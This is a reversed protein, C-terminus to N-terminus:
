FMAEYQRAIKDWNHNRHALELLSAPADAPCTILSKLQEGTNFYRILGGTTERNYNVDFALIPRDFHMAEVLSPNTGGASHGHIYIGANARLAYLIDLDYIAEILHIGPVNSFEEYLMRSYENHQWNGVFAMEMGLERITQLIMLCNNEPEIRCVSIAYQGATLGYRKVIESQTDKDLDRIAHDGGYTIIEPYRHYTNRVYNAIVTNDAIVVDAHRVATREALRLFRRTTSGWKYRRHELGDINVVVKARTFRKLMPLMVCGSVGLMLITDYGRLARAMSIIDYPISQLGNAHLPTYKLEAGEYQRGRTKLDLSSCFVTYSVRNPDRSRILNEVLTEFGGYRAPVGQAGIIAVRKAKM